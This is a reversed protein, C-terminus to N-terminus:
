ESVKIEYLKPWRKGTIFIRDNGADYAIGNLVDANDARRESEPYVSSLDIYSNVKGTLPDIRAILDSQWINAWIEGKIYELENLQDVKKRNDYVEIRSVVNFMEPEIFYLVNTGDSMIIRDDITTLGWGETQYYIKNIVTFTAKDYVFGVKDRWTVQYIKGRYLTIGEGFLPSELNHQRIVRGTEVAVERLSSGVEQGTGEYLVGNEYFLGQTFADPDHPYAHAVRFGNKSPERDSYIIVFRTITQVKGKTYAVAKVPKRGTSSTMGPPVILEWPAKRIIGVVRSDFLLKVSDPVEQERESELSVRVQDGLKYEANEAPLIMRVFRESAAPIAEKNVNNHETERKGSSGSCSVIWILPMLLAMLLLNGSFDPRM